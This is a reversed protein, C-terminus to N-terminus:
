SILSGRQFMTGALCAYNDAHQHHDPLNGEDWIYRAKDEDYKRVAATMQPVFDGHDLAEWGKPLQIAGQAYRAYAADLSATRDVVIRRKKHDPAREVDATSRNSTYTCTYWGAHRRCWDRAAHHEPEADIVGRKVHFMACVRQLEDWDKVSGVYVKRPVSNTFEEIHLHLTAGVDVGAYTRDAAAPMTYDSACFSLTSWTFSDGSGKYPEGLINNAFRQRQTPNGESAVWDRFMQYIVPIGRVDAFLKSIKYGRSLYVDPRAAVWQGPTLRDFFDNCRRCQAHADAGGRTFPPISGIGLDGDRLLWQGDNDQRVFNQKWALEQREGCHPCKVLWTQQDSDTYLKNIGMGQQTPNGFKRMITQEAAGLRDEAYILNQQDCRDYEDILLAGAPFEFFNSRQRSGVFKWSANFLTKLGVSDAYAKGRGQKICYFPSIELGRDVRNKVFTNRWEDTPLVYLGDIKGFALTMMDCLAWETIGVQSAKQVIINPSNDQYLATLWARNSGFELVAGAGTRHHLYGM